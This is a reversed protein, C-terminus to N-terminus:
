DQKTTAGAAIGYSHSLSAPYPCLDEQLKKSSHILAHSSRSLCISESQIPYKRLLRGSLMRLLQQISSSLLLASVRSRPDDGLLCHTPSICSPYLRCYLHCLSGGCQHVSTVVVLPYLLACGLHSKHCPVLRTTVHEPQLMLYLTNRPRLIGM